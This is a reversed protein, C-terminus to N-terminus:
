RTSVVHLSTAMEPLSSPGIFTHPQAPDTRLTAMDLQYIEGKVYKAAM